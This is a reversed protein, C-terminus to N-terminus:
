EQNRPKEPPGYKMGAVLALEKSAYFPPSFSPVQRVIRNVQRHTTDLFQSLQTNVPTYEHVAGRGSLPGEGESPRQAGSPVRDNDIGIM